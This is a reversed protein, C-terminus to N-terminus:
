DKTRLVFEDVESNGVHQVLVRFRGIIEIAEEIVPQVRICRILLQFVKPGGRVRVKEQDTNSDARKKGTDQLHQSIPAARM